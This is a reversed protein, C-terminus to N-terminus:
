QEALPGAWVSIGGLDVLESSVILAARMWYSALGRLFGQGARLPSMARVESSAMQTRPANHHHTSIRPWHSLRIRIYKKSIILYTVQASEV